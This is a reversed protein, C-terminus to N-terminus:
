NREPWFNAAEPGLWSEIAGSFITNFNRPIYLSVCGVVIGNSEEPLRANGGDVYMARVADVEGEATLPPNEGGNSSAM